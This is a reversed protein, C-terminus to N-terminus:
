GNKALNAAAKKKELTLKLVQRGKGSLAGPRPTMRALTQIAKTRLALMLERAYDEISQGERQKPLDTSHIRELLAPVVREIEPLDTM